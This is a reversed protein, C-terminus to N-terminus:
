AWASPTISSKLFTEGGAKALDRQFAADVERRQFDPEGVLRADALLVVYPGGRRCATEALAGPRDTQKLTDPKPSTSGALISICAM